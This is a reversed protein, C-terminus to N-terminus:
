GAKRYRVLVATRLTSPRTDIASLIGPVAGDQMSILALTLHQVGIGNDHLAQAEHLSLALSHKAHATFRLHTCSTPDSPKPANRSARHRHLRRSVEALPGKGRVPRRSHSPTPQASALAHPGFAAELRARVADLDIGISALAQRDLGALPDTARGRGVTRLIEAEVREPTLGHERLVTSAPEDASVAALLLHECGIFDHGLRRADREALVVVGRAADTFREFMM